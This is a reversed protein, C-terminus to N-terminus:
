LSTARRPYRAKRTETPVDHTIIKTPPAAIPICRRYKHRYPELLHDLIEVQSSPWMRAREILSAEWRADLSRLLKERMAPTPHSYTAQVTGNEHGMREDKLPEAIGDEDMWVKGSHRHGHPTLGETIPLWAATAREAAGRGKLPVGPWPGAGVPVPREPLPKKTPYWGWVAPYFVGSRFNSRTWHAETARTTPASTFGLNAIAAEVRARTSARVVDPRNLVNYVTGTSVGAETAVAKLSPGSRSVIGVPGPFIHIGAPHSYKERFEPADEHKVCPCTGASPSIAPLTRIQHRLLRAIHTPVDAVRRKGDKPLKRIISGDNLGYLQWHIHLRAMELATRELGIVEGFRMCMYPMTVGIVFEADRGTLLAMREAILLAGLPTTWMEDDDRRKQADALVRREEISGRTSRRRVPARPIAQQAVADELMNDLRGRAQRATSAAYASRIKREWADIEQDAYALSNLTRNGFAPLIFSQLLYAYHQQTGPISSQAPLWNNAWETLTIEGDRPDIWTGKTIKAIQEWGHAEAEEHTTFGSGLPVMEGDATRYRVRFTNRRKEVYPRM